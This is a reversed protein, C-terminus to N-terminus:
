GVRDEHFAQERKRSVAPLMVIGILVASLILMALSIPRAVLITPDGKSILLARRLFEEMM